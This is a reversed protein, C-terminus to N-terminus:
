KNQNTPKIKKLIKKNFIQSKKFKQMKISFRLEKKVRNLQLDQVILIRIFIMRKNNKNNNKKMKKLKM